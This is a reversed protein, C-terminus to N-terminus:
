RKIVPDQYMVSQGFNLDHTPLWEHKSKVRVQEPGLRHQKRAVNSM